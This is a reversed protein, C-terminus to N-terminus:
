QYMLIMNVVKFMCDSRPLSVPSRQSWFIEVFWPCLILVPFVSNFTYLPPFPKDDKSGNDFLINKYLRADVGPKCAKHLINSNQQTTGRAAPQCCWHVAKADSSHVACNGPPSHLWSGALRVRSPRDNNLYPCSGVKQNRLGYIFAKSKLPFLNISQNQLFHLPTFTRTELFKCFNNLKM